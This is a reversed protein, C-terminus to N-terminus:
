NHKENYKNTKRFKLNDTLLFVGILIPILSLFQWINPIQKLFIWAILLTLFPTLSSLALAKTVSIRHIAEVWLLKSFGFLLIGNILLFLLSSKIDIYSSHQNLLFALLFIIPFSLFSRLFMITESSTIKRAKQQFHNGFPACFTAALIFIDGINISSFDRGLVIIAGLVMLFAGIKYEHSIKDGKFVHFLLFSTFIEFLAIISANGATTKTLGIYFFSYFLVGIFLVVISVYKWVLPNLLERWKKKYLVIVGFFISSFFTSYALSILSPLKGYSLITIVPFFAWFFGEVFIFIEGKREETINM